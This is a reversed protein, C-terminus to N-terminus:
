MEAAKKRETCEDVWKWLNGFLNSRFNLDIMMEV